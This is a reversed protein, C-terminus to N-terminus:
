KGHTSTFRLRYAPRSHVSARAGMRMSTLPSSFVLRPLQPTRTSTRSSSSRMRSSCSPHSQRRVSAVGARVPPWASLSSFLPPCYSIHASPCPGATRPPLPPPRLTGSLPASTGTVSTVGASTRSRAGVSPSPLPAPQRCAGQAHVGGSDMKRACHKSNCRMAAMSRAFSATFPVTRRSNALVNSMLASIM